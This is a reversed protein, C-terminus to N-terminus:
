MVNLSILVDSDTCNQYLLYIYVRYMRLLSINMSQFQMEAIKEYPCLFKDVFRELVACKQKNISQNKVDDVYLIVM